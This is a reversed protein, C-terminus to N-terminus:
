KLDLLKFGSLKLSTEGAIVKIFFLELYCISNDVALSDASSESSSFNISDDPVSGSESCASMMCLNSLNVSVNTLITEIAFDNILKM